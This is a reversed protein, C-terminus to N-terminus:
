GQLGAGAAPECVVRWAIARHEISCGSEIGGTWDGGFRAAAGFMGQLRM